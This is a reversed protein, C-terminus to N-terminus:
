AHTEVSDRRSSSIAGSIWRVVGRPLHRVFFFLFKFRAAAHGSSSFRHLHTVKVPKGPKAAKPKKDTM